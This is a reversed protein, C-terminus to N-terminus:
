GPAPAPSVAPQAPPLHLTSRAQPHVLCMLSHHLHELHVWIAAPQGTAPIVPSDYDPIEVTTLRQVRQQPIARVLPEIDRADPTEGLCLLRRQTGQSRELFRAHAPLPTSKITFSRLLLYLMYALSKKM